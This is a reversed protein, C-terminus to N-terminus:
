GCGLSSHYIAVHLCLWLRMWIAHSSMSVSALGLGSSFFGSLKQNSDVTMNYFQNKFLFVYCHNGLYLAEFCRSRNPNQMKTQPHSEERRQDPQTNRQWILKETFLTRDTKTWLWSWLQQWKLIMPLKWWKVLNNARLISKFWQWMDEASIM